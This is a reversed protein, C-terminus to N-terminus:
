RFVDKLDEIKDYDYKESHKPDLFAYAYSLCGANVQPALSGQLRLQLKKIDITQTQSLVVEELESIQFLFSCRYHTIIHIFFM